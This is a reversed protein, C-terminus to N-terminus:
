CLADVVKRLLAVSVGDSVELVLPRQDFRLRIPCARATEVALEVFAPPQVALATTRAMSRFRSRWWALTSPNVGRREAFVQLSLMSGEFEAVLAAWRMAAPSMSM